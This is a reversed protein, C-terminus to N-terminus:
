INMSYSSLTLFNQKLNGGLYAQTPYEPVTKMGM